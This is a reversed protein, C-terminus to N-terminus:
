HFHKLIGAKHFHTYKNETQQVTRKVTGGTQVIYNPEQVPQSSTIAFLPNLGKSQFLKLTDIFTTLILSCPSLIKRSQLFISFLDQEPFSVIAGLLSLTFPSQQPDLSIHLCSVFPLIAHGPSMTCCSNHTTRASGRWNQKVSNLPAWPHKDPFSLSALSVSM